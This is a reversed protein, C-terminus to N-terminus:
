RRPKALASSVKRNKRKANKKPLTARFYWLWLETIMDSKRAHKEILAESFNIWRLSLSKKISKIHTPENRLWLILWIQFGIGIKENNMYLGGKYKHSLRYADLLEKSNEKFVWKVFLPSYFIKTSILISYAKNKIPTDSFMNLIFKKSVFWGREIVM